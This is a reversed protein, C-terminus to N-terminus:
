RGRYVPTRKEAFARLGEQRDETTLTVEYAARELALAEPM